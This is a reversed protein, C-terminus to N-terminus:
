AESLLAEAMEVHRPMGIGRYMAIAETLLERAKERDGPADRDLLMRAYWRRVEPQALVVPLEHAQRLAMRYHEEAKEWQGGCAAAMGAVVHVSGLFAHWTTGTGIEELALSYLKAAEDRELLISLGEIVMDLMWWAGLTNVRGPRPLGGRRQDLMALAADRGRSYATCLFLRGWDDGAVVGPPELRAAEQFSELAQDWRGRWFHAMGLNSYSMSVWPIDASRCLELDAKAFEEFREIDATLALERFGRLRRTVWLSGLNGLRVALPELEEGIEAAADHRDLMVLGFQTYWLANSLQWLDGASRLLEIGRTGAEVAQQPQMYYFHHGAKYCLVEGLLHRDGLEEAMTLAQAILPIACRLGTSM